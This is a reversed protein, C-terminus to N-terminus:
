REGGRREEGRSQQGRREEGRREEGRREEGRREGRSINLDSPLIGQWQSISAKTLVLQQTAVVPSAACRPVSSTNTQKHGM